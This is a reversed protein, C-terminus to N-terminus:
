LAKMVVITIDDQQPQHQAFARADEYLTNVIASAPQQRFSRVRELVREVGFLTKDPSRTEWLGDTMILVLEGPRLRIPGCM